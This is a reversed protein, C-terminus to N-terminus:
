REQVPDCHDAYPLVPPPTGAKTRTNTRRTAVPKRTGGPSPKAATLDILSNEGGFENPVYADANWDNDWREGDVFFRYQYTRGIELPVTVAFSGDDARQMPHRTPNWANFEGVLSATHGDVAAPLTFVIEVVNLPNVEVGDTRM